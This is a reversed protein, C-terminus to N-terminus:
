QARARALAPRETCAGLWRSVNKFGSLDFKAIHATALIGALNLDAVTFDNGLLYDRKALHADLVALPRQLKETASAVAAPNRQDEPFMVTNLFIQILPDEIETLGWVTWQIARAEDAADSPYLKGGYKKALYLNIAMSEFLVVDGDVLAPIRGNPNIQLFDPKKSDGLFHTPVLEYEVGVEEAAWISRFARSAPIGYLKV